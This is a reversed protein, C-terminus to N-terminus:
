KNVCHMLTFANNSLRIGNFFKVFLFKVHLEISIKLHSKFYKKQIFNFRIKTERKKSLRAIAYFHMVLVM